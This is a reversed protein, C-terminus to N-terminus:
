LSIFLPVSSSLSDQASEATLMSGLGMLRVGHDSSLGLTPHDVWQAVWFGLQKRTTKTAGKQKKRRKSEEKPTQYSEKNTHKYDNRKIKQTNVRANQKTTAMLRVYSLM